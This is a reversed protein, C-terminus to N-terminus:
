TIKSILINKLYLACSNNGLTYGLIGGVENKARSDKLIYTQGANSLQIDYSMSKKNIFNLITLICFIIGIFIITFPIVYNKQKKIKINSINITKTEDSPRLRRLKELENALECKEFHIKDIYVLAQDASKFRELLKIKTLLQVLEIFQSSYGREALLSENIKFNRIQILLGSEVSDSFVKHGVSLEYIIIGLSYLDSQESYIGDDLLEPATYHIKGYTLQESNLDHNLEVIKALGFDLLKVMGFQDIIMNQPSLDRHLIPNNNLSHAFKLAKLIQQAFELMFNESIKTKQNYIIQNLESITTGEILELILFVFGEYERIDYIQCVNPHSLKTLIQAENQLLKLRVEMTKTDLNSLIKKCAVPKEFGNDNYLVGRYVEGMGGEGIKELIKLKTNSEM